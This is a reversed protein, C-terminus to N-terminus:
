LTCLRYKRPLQAAELDEHILIVAGFCKHLSKQLEKLSMKLKKTIDSGYKLLQSIAHSIQITLYHIKMANYNECFVHKLYYGHQKQVKFGENEIRWRRRGDQVTSECNKQDIPLDTIFIFPYKVNSDKCEVMNISYDEYQLDNAYTYELKSFGDYLEDISTIDENTPITYDDKKKFVRFSDGTKISIQCFKNYLTPISGEKFRLIFRWNNNRCKEFVQQKAYLSDATICIPLRPFAEKLKDALRYFAKIECDQKAHDHRPEDYNPSYLEEESPIEGENEVFETCISFVLKEHLVLKAELVYHYFEVRTVEGKKNKHRRFLCSDCHRHKFSSLTTGDILIQWYKGRVRSKNFTNRRALSVIMSYIIKELESPSIKKFCNNITDHSPLEELDQNLITAINKIKIEDNFESTLERMSTIGFIAALIREMLLVGMDYKTYSKYRPDPVNKLQDILNPFYSYIISLLERLSKNSRLTQRREARNVSPKTKEVPKQTSSNKVEQRLEEHKENKESEFVSPAEVM